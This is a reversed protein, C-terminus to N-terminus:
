FLFGIKKVTYTHNKEYFKLTNIQFLTYSVLHNVNAELGTPNVFASEQKTIVSTAVM